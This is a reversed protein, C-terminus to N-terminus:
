LRGLLPYSFPKGQFTQVAAYISFGQSVLSVTLIVGFFVFFWIPYILFVGPLSNVDSTAAFSFAGLFLFSVFLLLALVGAVASFLLHFFFAQKGQRSAYPMTSPTLLWILLPVILPAFFSSLHALGALLPENSSLRPWQGMLPTGGASGQGFRARADPGASPGFEQFPPMNGGGYWTNGDARGTQNPSDNAM